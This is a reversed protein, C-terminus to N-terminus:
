TFFSQLGKLEIENYHQCSGCTYNVNHKLSPMDEFFNALKQFQESNLNDLFDQLNKTTENSADHVNDEDFITDICSMMIKFVGEVSELDDGITQITEFSPYNLVVGVTDTLMIKNIDSNIVPAQIEEINVSLDSLKECENCKMKLDINEGVSKSRLALFLSEIDFMALKNVNIDDYVCQEIVDKIARMIMKQDQSELALMLVKEEKVLYPRYTISQGLSPINTEYRASNLQPLAM